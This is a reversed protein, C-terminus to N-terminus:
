LEVRQGDELNRKPYLIVREKVEVGTVEVYDSFKTLIEVRKFHAVNTSDITFVGTIGARQTISNAPVLLAERKTDSIYIKAYMGPILDDRDKLSFKVIYSHTQVDVFPVISIIEGEIEKNLAEIHILVSQGIKLNKIHSEQILAKAKIGDLSSVVLIPEGATALESTNKKKAIVVGNFSATVKSYKMHSNARDLNIQAEKVM